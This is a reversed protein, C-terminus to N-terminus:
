CEAIDDDSLQNPCQLCEFTTAKTSHLGCVFEHCVSCRNTVKQDKTRPCAICRGRKKEMATVKEGCTSNMGLIALASAMQPRGSIMRNSARRKVNDAVLAEGLELLFFRRKDLRTSAHHNNWDPNQMKFAVLANVCATDVIFYFLRMPWRLTKRACSYNSILQDFTDVAGKTSNYDLVAYPKKANSDLDEDVEPQSHMTSMVLVTKNRKPSYSVLMTDITFAFISEYPERQAPILERPLETRSKRVTGLLTMKKSLLFQGLQHGTFFNDTTVNRGTGYLFSTL